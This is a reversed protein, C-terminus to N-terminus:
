SASSCPVEQTNYFYADSDETAWRTAGAECDWVHSNTLFDPKEPFPKVVSGPEHWRLRNNPQIAYHGDDLAILHGRKFGGEGASEAYGSGWWTFTWLYRGPQWTRDKMFVDVRLGALHDIVSAEMEYSLCNWLQLHDLPRSTTVKRSCLASVPLRSFLGGFETLIDFGVARGMVSDAGVVCCPIFDGQHSRLDYLYEARVLCYLPPTSVYFGM